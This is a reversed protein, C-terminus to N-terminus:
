LLEQRRHRLAVLALTWTSAVRPRVSVPPPAERPRCGQRAEDVFGVSCASMGSQQLRRAMACIFVGARAVEGRLAPAGEM